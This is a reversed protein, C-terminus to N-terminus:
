WAWGKLLEELSSADLNIIITEKAQHKVKKLLKADFFERLYGNFVDKSSAYLKAECIEYFLQFRGGAGKGEKLSALQMEALLKFITRSNQPLSVLVDKVGKSGGKRTKTKVNIAMEATYREYTHVDYWLWNFYGATIHDWM